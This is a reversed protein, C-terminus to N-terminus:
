PKKLGREAAQIEEWSPAHWFLVKGEISVAFLTNGDPSFGLRIYFRDTEGPLTALCRGSAVDWIRGIEKPSASTTILREGDPSFVHGQFETPYNPGLLTPTRTAVNWLTLLGNIGATAYWRGDPSFRV